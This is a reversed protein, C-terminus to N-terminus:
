RIEERQFEQLKRLEHSYTTIAKYITAIALYDATDVNEGHEKDKKKM